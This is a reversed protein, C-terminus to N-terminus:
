QNGGRIINKAMLESSLITNEAELLIIRTGLRKIRNELITIQKHKGDSMLQLNEIRNDTRIHNKHHIIEWSKLNRGLSKAVVLRHELVYGWKDTMDYFSDDPQLKVLVYGYYNKYRGGKWSPNKDGRLIGSRMKKKLACKPCLAYSPKGRILAVWREKGCGECAHYIFNTTYASITM